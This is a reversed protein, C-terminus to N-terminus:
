HDKYFETEFDRHNEIRCGCAEVIADIQRAPTEEDHDPLLVLYEYKSLSDLEQKGRALRKLIEEEKETGRGRLRKELTREDPPAVMILIAEPLKEKVQLGGKVDIELIVNKGESRAREVAEVPTGYNNGNIYQAYELFRGERIREEFEEGSIFYYHVGDTEGRRPKRTTCSVSLYYKEPYSKVLHGVVTGKGSGAPGSIVLVQGKRTKDM